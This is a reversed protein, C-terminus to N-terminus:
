EGKLTVRKVSVFIDKWYDTALATVRVGRKSDAHIMLGNGYYIGVHSVSKGKVDTPATRPNAYSNYVKEAEGYTGWFYIIDGPLLKAVDDVTEITETVVTQGSDSYQDQATRPLKVGNARFVEQTFSSCDMTGSFEGLINNGGVYSGPKIVSFPQNPALLYRIGIWKEAEKVVQPLAVGGVAGDKPTDTCVSAGIMKTALVSTIRTGTLFSSLGYHFNLPRDGPRGDDGVRASLNQALAWALKMGRKDKYKDWIVTWLPKTIVQGNLAIPTSNPAFELQEPTSVRHFGNKGGNGMAMDRFISEDYTSKSDLPISWNSWSRKADDDSTAAFLAAFFHIYSDVEQLNDSYGDGSHYKIQAMFLSTKEIFDKKNAVIGWEDAITDMKTVWGLKNVEALNTMFHRASMAVGWPPFAMDYKPKSPAPYAARITDALSPYYGDLTKDKGVGMFGYGSTNVGLTSINKTIDSTNEDHERANDTYFQMGNEVGAKGMIMLIRLNKDTGFDKGLENGDYGEISQRALMGMRYLNKEYPDLLSGRATLEEPTFALGGPTCAAVPTGDKAADGFDPLPAQTISKLMALIMFIIILIVVVCLIIMAWTLLSLFLPLTEFFVVVTTVLGMIRVRLSQNANEKDGKTGKNKSGESSKTGNMKDKLFQRRDKAKKSSERIRKKGSEIATMVSLLFSFLHRVEM